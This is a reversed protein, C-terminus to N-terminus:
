TVEPALLGPRPTRTPEPKIPAYCLLEPIRTGLKLGRRKVTKTFFRQTEGNTVGPKGPHYRLITEVLLPDLLMTFSIGIEKEFLHKAYTKKEVRQVNM